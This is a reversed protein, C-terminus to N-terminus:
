IQGCAHRHPFLPATSHTFHLLESFAEGETEASETLIEIGVIFSMEMECM